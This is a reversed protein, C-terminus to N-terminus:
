YDMEIIRKKQITQKESNDSLTKPPIKAINICDNLSLKKGSIFNIRSEEALVQFRRKQVRTFYEPAQWTLNMDPIHIDETLEQSFVSELGKKTLTPIFNPMQGYPNENIIYDLYGYSFLIDLDMEDGTYGHNYISILHNHLRHNDVKLYNTEGRCNDCTGCPQIDEGFCKLLGQTRCKSSFITQAMYHAYQYANDRNMNDMRIKKTIGPTVHGISYANNGDRGARGIEQYWAEATGPIETHIVCIVDSKDIGMGFGLTAVMVQTQGTMFELANAKRESIDLGSHHISCDINNQQLFNKISECDARKPCYIITPKNTKQCVHIEELLSDKMDQYESQFSLNISINKREMGSKIINPNKMWAFNIIDNVTEQSATATLALKPINMQSRTEINHLVKGVESYELRFDQGWTSICHAEDFVAFVPPMQIMMDQVLDNQLMEPSLFLIGQDTEMIQNIINLRSELDLSGSLIYSSFGLSLARNKQDEMLSILPSIVLVWGDSLFAPVQYCLTKGGGTAMIALTDHGSIISSIVDEQIGRLSSYGLAELTSSFDYKENM